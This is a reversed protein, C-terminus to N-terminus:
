VFNHKFFLLSVNNLFNPATINTAKLVGKDGLELYIRKGNNVSCIENSRLYKTIAGAENLINIILFCCVVKYIRIQDWM